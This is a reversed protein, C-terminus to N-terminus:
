QFKVTFRAMGMGCVGAIEESVKPKGLDIKAIGTIPLIEQINLSDIIVTRTCGYNEESEFQVITPLNASAVTQSPVYANNTVSIRVVQQGGLVQVNKSQAPARTHQTLQYVLALLLVISIFILVLKKIM